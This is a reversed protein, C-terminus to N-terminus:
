KSSEGDAAVEVENDELMTTTTTKTTTMTTATTATTPTTATTTTMTTMKTTLFELFKDCPVRITMLTQSSSLGEYLEANVEYTFHPM